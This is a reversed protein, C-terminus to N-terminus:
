TANIATVQKAAARFADELPKENRTFVSDVTDNFVKTSDPHRKFLELPRSYDKKSGDVLSAMNKDALAPYAQKMLPAYRDLWSKRTPAFGALANDKWMRDHLWQMATLSQTSDFVAKTNDKPDVHHGGNARIYHGTREYDVVIYYGWRQQDAENLKVMAERLTNWDWTDDPFALGKRKFATRNYHLGRTYPSMPLAFQGRQPLNWYQMLTPMFDALPIEKGDRKLMPDMNLLLGQGGWIPLNACCAAMVDPAGDAALLPGYDTGSNNNPEQIVTIYPFKENFVPLAKKAANL